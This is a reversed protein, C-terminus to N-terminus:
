GTGGAQWYSPLPRHLHAVSLPHAPLSRFPEPGGAVGQMRGLGLAKAYLERLAKGRGEEDLPYRREIEDTQPSLLQILSSTRLM